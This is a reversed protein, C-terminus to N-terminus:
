SCSNVNEQRHKHVVRQKLSAFVKLLIQLIEKSLFTSKANSGLSFFIAGDKAEDLFNKLDEPLPSPKPKVQLGGIEVMSPLNPRVRGSSFHDNILALSVNQLSEDYSRYRDAPFNFDYVQRARYKLYQTLGLEAGTALFTKLRGIFNWEKVPVMVNAVFGLPNGLAQNIVDFAMAPSFLISPCKFHDAVGLMFETMFYGVIVLDFKEERMLKKMEPMQLSENGLRFVLSTLRPFMYTFGKGKPDKGMEGIFEKDAENFPIKIDRYNKVQKSLPYTSVFTIQHGKEALALSLTQLPMIHSKSITPYLVLIRSCELGSCFVLLLAFIKIDMKINQERGFYFIFKQKSSVGCCIKKCSWKLFKFFLYIVVVIFLIVDISNYQLFNLDAGPYHMHSAGHHRLVYEVWFVATDQANMPRDRALTSMRKVTNTYKPNTLIEHIADKLKMETMSNVDVKVGWGEKVVKAANDFQDAFMPVGVIPVGHYKSEIVGGLGCHSIFLRLNPHALVDDQPLWQSIFVNKPQNEMTDAEWKMVVRQKLSAFVKLLIQLTEKSLFTSKANSGLCFFIAGDKAEDLFNKLDEPLPLPEPKVQVGGIEVVAPVNPRVRGSSSFYDNILALSVNNLVEDYSRYRDAPFHFNYIQRSRYKVYEGFILDFGTALFNKLRGLFNMESIPVLPHPLGSVALPNGLARNMTNFAMAPSFLISPCKFHDALGLMFDNMFYGVIVLDFTEEKMLNKMEPMQLTDNGLRFVLESLKPFWHFFGKGDPDKVMESVFEKDEENFPIKIGRYNKVKEDFLYTSVFTIEHGKKALASSIAQLPIIHSKSITAELVLIRSCEFGVLFTVSLFLIKFDMVFIEKLNLLSLLEKNIAENGNHKFSRLFDIYDSPLKTEIAGNLIVNLYSKSPQREFPRDSPDMPTTPNDVLKYTRCSIEKDDVLVNVTMPKYIGCEVGEQRDLESLHIENIEWVAGYVISGLKEIITAPSGNWTPSYYKKDASTDAFDLVYDHLVGVGVREASKNQVDISNYQLFNLDAGPYHMHSAGHHRLVYEVWFVATDQANMPRDRALTSMRKVTNTYKPNTLIENIADKLKKETLSGLEIQVAWGEEVIKAANGPQDGFMPFGVIPVGHYKSEIVGGLGCHSIFLRLNPHALVDDQPLWQSIFVNKPQNEMTDAEWKMVVRQKLSAFVKLLIQLIEKSLFTSKANSGLSFFIAGDKAEDLFNKLDEPLPSPKPKVQLGGIEVMSPLNPRVRGSSFHDNILALSVNQLSEDYSRYRDAPFNFDYVQRARYKLYQTLGLEAGTALFTKLRGIFNWEKVPVMVNAVFGLPNGLAQNIVDFAMAPSFLISPCKFHDAVGLMFETMFYGVIVLDFKEERMLKKMEPMQLSENGLRFVLSTLRPFMYTFGKGKPDKGMEGIFEKDAENFPIKIDRYNKVQKSLPYTSVFTIQHGKEALALSLTQLPMIHSKSITPYLVLIRSCELGSCFVLLLAFIKIDMKINQERGFYFIFKQKSSVGCCIKKCSWKLFKFFLYVVVVIFLIVDISNYQLFNLDAGPYHMHSAGHHRLVYEVWFVATDQANMPRDRALTSMRKVTNTYKPNTLIEHIADKLKMETMSNVDVKVGWGEKVVKAANDFQDAFMPVGVIPVGHYKSEIVGGLGCHSIFLRLNPHALVDDQPLWQSIFVNKPQNEMTDAEWKMVVRQKLSAFVKLLIQLTEKSLFTSKANSGLCFFIAGDKAEDLFNKLDEPLPLPEPKVQVGGIEVVAPVNPRVRGSSSFYDNILALSVNNLVEDYSRYRDAPFHFNYIQRSRYKVYEGFILDFGTALFNKLRGM